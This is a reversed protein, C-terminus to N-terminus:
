FFGPALRFCCKDHKVFLNFVTSSFYVQLKGLTPYDNNVINNFMTMNITFNVSAKTIIRCGRVNSFTAQSIEEYLFPDDTLHLM